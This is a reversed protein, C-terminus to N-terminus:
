HPTKQKKRYEQYIEYVPKVGFHLNLKQFTEEKVWGIRSFEHTIRFRIHADTRYIFTKWRFLPANIEYEDIYQAKLASLRVGTEEFFERCATQFATERREVGGGPFSWLGKGPNYARKGLLVSFAGKPEERFLAIGAGKFGIREYVSKLEECFLFMPKYFVEPIAV